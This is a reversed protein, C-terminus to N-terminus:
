LRRVWGSRRVEDAAEVDAAPLTGNRIGDSLADLLRRRRAEESEHDLLRREAGLVVLEAITFGDPGMVTRLQALADAVAGEEVVTHIRYGAKM